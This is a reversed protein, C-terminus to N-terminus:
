PSTLCPARDGDRRREYHDGSPTFDADAFAIHSAVNEPRIHAVIAPTDTTAFLRRVGADILAAGLGKGRASPAVTVSIVAGEFRVVGIDTIFLHSAPDALRRRLWDAHTEWPIPDSTFSAARTAPDNAWEWLRRADAETVPRLDLSESVMRTVVRRAGRGDVLARGRGAMTRRRAPDHALDAVLGALDDDRTAALAIGARALAAALPAQNAALPVLVAPVGMCCLEWSTSGSGSLALDAGALVSAVDDVGELRTVTFHALRPDALATTVMQTDRQVPAGGIAVVLRTAHDPQDRQVEDRRLRFERRLLAYRPGLRVDRAGGYPGATAGLNQDVVLHAGEATGAQGHDDVVLLRCGAEPRVSGLHYGDVVVWDGGLPSTGPARVEVGESRFRRAWHPPPSDSVLTAVGGRDVWAEALALCRALHGVGIGPGGDARLVLSRM